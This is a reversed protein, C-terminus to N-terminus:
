NKHGALESEGGSTLHLKVGKLQSASAVSNQRSYLMKRKLEDIPFDSWTEKYELAMGHMQRATGHRAQQM